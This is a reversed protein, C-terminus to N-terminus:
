LLKGYLASREGKAPGTNNLAGIRPIPVVREHPNIGSNPRTGQRMRSKRM